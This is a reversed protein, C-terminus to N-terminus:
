MLENRWRICTIRCNPRKSVLDLLSFVIILFSCTLSFSHLLHLKYYYSHVFSNVSYSTGAENLTRTEAETAVALTCRKVAIIAMSAFVLIQELCLSATLSADTGEILVSLSVSVMAISGLIKHFSARKPFSSPAAM